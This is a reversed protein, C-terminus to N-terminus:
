GSQPYSSDYTRQSSLFVLMMETCLHEFDNPLRADSASAPKSYPSSFRCKTYHGTNFRRRSHRTHRLKRLVAMILWRRSSVSLALVLLEAMVFIGHLMWCLLMESPHYQLKVSVAVGAKNHM